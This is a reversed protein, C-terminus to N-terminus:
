PATDTHVRSCPRVHDSAREQKTKIVVITGKSRIFISLGSLLFLKGADGWLGLLCLETPGGRPQPGEKEASVPSWLAAQDSPSKAQTNPGPLVLGASSLCASM